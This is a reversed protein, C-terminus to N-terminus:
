KEVVLLNQYTEAVTQLSSMFEDLTVNGHIVQLVEPNGKIKAVLIILPLKKISLNKILSSAVIGFNRAIIDLLRQKNSPLTLDWGWPIFNEQM